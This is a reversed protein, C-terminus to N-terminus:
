IYEALEMWRETKNDLSSKTKEIEEAIKQLEIHDNSSSLEGTLQSIQEELDAIEKELSEFERQEKYSLKQKNDKEKVQVKEQKREEKKEAAELELQEQKFDAYNGNYIVVEGNGKFVFLQETLKDILYRDHSVLILIGPYEELFEELVNLTDIDLDNSPEDLILFNPNAMLVRMLQM